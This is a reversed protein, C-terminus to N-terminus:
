ARVQRVQPRDSGQVPRLRGRVEGVPRVQRHEDAERGPVTEPGLREDVRLKALDEPHGAPGVPAMALIGEVQRAAVDDVSEFTQAVPGDAGPRHGPEVGLRLCAAVEDAVELPKEKRPLKVSEVALQRPQLFLQRGALRPPRRKNEHVDTFRVHGVVVRARRPFSGAGAHREPFDPVVRRFTPPPLGPAHFVDVAQDAAQQRREGARCDQHAAIVAVGPALITQPAVANRVRLHQLHRQEKSQAPNAGSRRVARSSRLRSECSGERWLASLKELVALFRGRERELGHRSVTEAAGGLMRAREGSTQRALTECAELLAEKAYAPRLCNMGDLCFPRNGIVDPCIVPTGLAMAELAPLYFGERPKPLFLVAGARGLEGLFDARRLPSIIARVRHGRGTLEKELELALRPHKRGAILLEGAREAPGRDPVPLDVANPIVFVPGRVRGTGEIALRVPEGVCIRAARCGLMEIHWLGPDAHRFGQITCVVPAPWNERQAAPLRLWADRHDIFLAGAEEPRYEPEADAREGRWPNDADWVTGPHFWVRPEWEPSARAHQFYHWTKLHAGQMSLYHVHFLLTKKRHVRGPKAVWSLLSRHKARANAPHAPSAAPEDASPDEPVDPILSGLILWRQRAARTATDLRRAEAILGSREDTSSATELGGALRASWEAVPALAAPIHGYLRPVRTSKTFPKGRLAEYQRQWREGSGAGAPDANTSVGGHLQHFTAEGLLLVLETGPLECARLLLDQNVLGGGPLDFREDCGGLEGLLLARPGCLFNSEGPPRLIGERASRAPAAIEFLRYPDGDDPWGIAALLADERARSYGEAVSDQQSAPGLHWGTTAVVARPHTRAAALANALLGPSALRAGDVMVAVRGGRSERLGFNVAGAPSSTPRPVPLYRFNGPLAAVLAPDLPETSGNEVVLVEYDDEGIDRQYGAQLSRLTRAAERRMNYVVVVVSLLPAPPAIPDPASAPM